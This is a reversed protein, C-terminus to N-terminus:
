RNLARFLAEKIGFSIDNFKLTSASSQESESRDQNELHGDTCRVLRQTRLACSINPEYTHKYSKGDAYM